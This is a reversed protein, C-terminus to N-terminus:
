ADLDKVYCEVGGMQSPVASILTGNVTLGYANGKFILGRKLKLKETKVDFPFYVNFSNTIIGGSDSEQAPQIDCKTHLILYEEEVQEDLPKSDDVGYDYFYGDFPYEDLPDRDIIMNCRMLSAM